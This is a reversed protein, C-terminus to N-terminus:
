AKNKELTKDWMTVKNRGREKSKYLAIDAQNILETPSNAGFSMTSVGFSCTVGMEDFRSDEIKHRMTEAIYLAQTQHVQHLVICFEEGGFRVVLDDQKVCAQLIRVVGRIVVDGASHGYTDNIYKFHDIDVIILCYDELPVACKFDQNMKEFLVRRNYCDTLPDHTALYDLEQNHKKSAIFLRYIFIFLMVSIALLLALTMNAYKNKILELDTIIKTKEAIEIENNKKALELQNLKAKERLSALEMEVKHSYLKAKILVLEQEEREKQIKESLAIDVEAYYLSEALNGRQKEAQQLERYAYLKYSPANIEDSLLLTKKLMQIAEDTNHKLLLRALPLMAKVEYVKSNVETALLLSHQYYLMAKEDDNQERYINGLIRSTLSQKTKDHSEQYLQHAKEAMMKASQYHGFNLDIVAMERLASALTKPEIDDSPLDITLQYFSRGQEFQKLRSYLLGMENSTKALGSNNNTKKYYLHAKYIHELSKEYRAIHRYIIGAGMLAKAEGEPDNIEKHIELGQMSYSLAAEYNDLYREAEALTNLTRAMNKKDQLTTFVALAKKYFLATQERNKLRKYAQAMKKYTEGRKKQVTSTEVYLYKVSLTYQTIADQYHKQQYFRDGKIILTLAILWDDKHQLALPLLAEIENDAHQYRKKDLLVEIYEIATLLYERFENEQKYIESARLFYVLSADIKNSEKAIKGLLVTSEAKVRPENNKEALQIANNAFEVSKRKDTERLSKAENLLERASLDESVPLAVINNRQQAHTPFIILFTLLTFIITNIYRMKMSFLLSLSSAHCVFSIQEGLRKIVGENNIM